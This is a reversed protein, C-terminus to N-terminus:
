NRALIAPGDYEKVEDIALSLISRGRDSQKGKAGESAVSLWNVVGKIQSGGRDDISRTPGSRIM